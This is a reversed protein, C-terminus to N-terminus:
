IRTKAPDRPKWWQSHYDTKGSCCMIWMDWRGLVGAMGEVPYEEQVDADAGSFKWGMQKMDVDIYIKRTKFESLDTAVFTREQQHQEKAATIQESMQEIKKRLAEIEADKEGLLSEQEKIKKTDVVVKETPILAEDFQREEYDAGYCYDVWQIFEFLGQLSALADSAQVSRETHVALNGLKIIFPLKGWTNYDVAFRFSPEHILAQLNDKYPMQMTKDASYVWKVALELAKRSGVACMAPASVYVKEAEIAASAFLAYEKKDKLFGFNSM